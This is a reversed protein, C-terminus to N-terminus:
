KMIQGPDSLLFLLALHLIELCQTRGTSPWTSKPSHEPIWAFLVSLDRSSGTYSHDWVYLLLQSSLLPGLVLDSHLTNFTGM